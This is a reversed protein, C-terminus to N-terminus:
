HIMRKLDVFRLMCHIMVKTIKNVMKISGKKTKLMM